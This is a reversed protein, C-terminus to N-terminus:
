FYKRTMNVLTPVKKARRITGYIGNNHYLEEQRRSLPADLKIEYASDAYIVISEVIDQDNLVGMVFFNPVWEARRGRAHVRGMCSARKVASNKEQAIKDKAAQYLEAFGEDDHEYAKLERIRDSRKLEATLEIFAGCDAEAAYQVTIALKIGTRTRCHQATIGSFDRSSTTAPPSLMVGEEDKVEESARTGEPSVEPFSTGEELSHSACIGQKEEGDRSFHNYTKIKKEKCVERPNSFFYASDTTIETTERSTLERERSRILELIDERTTM